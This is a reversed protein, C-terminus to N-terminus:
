GLFVVHMESGWWHRIGKKQKSWVSARFASFFNPPFRGGDKDLKDLPRSSRGGERGEGEKDWPRSGASGVVSKGAVDSSRASFNGM